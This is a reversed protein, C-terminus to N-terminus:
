RIAVGASRTTAVRAYSADIGQMDFSSGRVRRVILTANDDAELSALQAASITLQGDDRAACSLVSGGSLLEVEIRDRPDEAEWNLALDQSRLVAGIADLTFGKIELGALASPASLVAEFAGVGLEGPARLTYEDLEARRQPLEADIAYFWGAATTSLAPFLRPALTTTVEANRLGIDGISLLEVQVDQSVPETSLGRGLECTELDIPQAGLLRLLAEGDLGRYRAVKAGVVVRSSIGDPDVFREVQLLSVSGVPGTPVAGADDTEGTTCAASAVVVAGLIAASAPRLFLRLFATSTSRPM